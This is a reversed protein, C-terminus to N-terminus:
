AFGLNHIVTLEREIQRYAGPVREASDPGYRQPAKDAVLVRLWGMEDHTGPVPFDPLKPAIVKFDFACEGALEVTRDAVGPYRRLRHAMEAGSKIYATGSAALWGDMEDLSIRARVAALVQAMRADAPTAYHVNNTAVVGLGADRALAFLADNREDDGPQDHNILEAMVNDRGFMDTLVRLEAAAREGAGSALAAAVTGKRCGTLIVWHGDHAQALADLDYGPRGKEGGALQAASIVECLRRYGDPDRALM